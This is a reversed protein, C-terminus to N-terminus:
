VTVLGAVVGMGVPLLLAWSAAPHDHRRGWGMLAAAVIGFASGYVLLDSTDLGSWGRALVTAIVAPGVFLLVAAITDSATIVTVEVESRTRRARAAQVCLTVVVVVQLATALIFIARFADSLM